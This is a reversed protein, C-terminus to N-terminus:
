GRGRRRRDAVQEFLEGPEVGLASVLADLTTLKIGAIRNNAIGNITVFSLGSRRALESQSIGAEELLEHLRFRIAVESAGVM